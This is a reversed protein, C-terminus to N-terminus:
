VGAPDEAGIKEKIFFVEELLKLAGESETNKVVTSSVKKFLEELTAGLVGKVGQLTFLELASRFKQVSEKDTTLHSLTDCARLLEERYWPLYCLYDNVTHIGDSATYQEDGIYVFSIKEEKEVKQIARLIKKSDTGFHIAKPRMSFYHLVAKMRHDVILNGLGKGRYKPAVIARSVVPFEENQYTRTLKDRIAGAALFTYTSSRANFGLYTFIHANLEKRDRDLAQKGLSLMESTVEDESSLERVRWTHPVDCVQAARILDNEFKDPLGKIAFIKDFGAREAYSGEILDAKFELADITITEGWTGYTNM